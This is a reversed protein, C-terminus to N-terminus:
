AAPCTRVDDAHLASLRQAGRADTPHDGAMFAKFDDESHWYLLAGESLVFYRDRWQNSSIAKLGKQTIHKRLIGHFECIDPKVLDGLHLMQLKEAAASGDTALDPHSQVLSLPNDLRHDVAGMLPQAKEDEMSTKSFVPGSDGPTHLWGPFGEHLWTSKSEKGYYDLHIRVTQKVVVYFFSAALAMFICTDLLDSASDGSLSIMLTACFVQVLFGVLSGIFLKNIMGSYKRTARLARSMSGAKGGLSVHSAWESCFMSFILSALSAM